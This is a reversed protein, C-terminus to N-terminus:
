EEEEEIKTVTIYNRANKRKEVRRMYQPTTYWYVTKVLWGMYEAVELATGTILHDDGRYCTYIGKM